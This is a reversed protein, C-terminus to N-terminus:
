GDILQADLTIEVNGALAASVPCGTKAGDAIENFQNASIGPVSAQVTIASSHIKVGGGEQPGFKITSSTDVKEPTFGATALANSLAMAYCAAHAAAILEEPSTAPNGEDFRAKWTLGVDSFLGSEASVTGSGEMLDGAWSATAKKTAM